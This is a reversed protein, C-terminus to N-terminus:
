GRAKPASEPMVDAYEFEATEGYVHDFTLGFAGKTSGSGRGVTYEPAFAFPAGKITTLSGDPATIPDVAATTWKGITASPKKGAKFGVPAREVGLFDAILPLFEAFPGGVQGSFIAEAAKAQEGSAKEDIVLGIKWNGSTLNTPFENYMGVNVGSLDVGDSTGTEIHFVATGHCTGNPGTPTGDVPCPCLLQCSCNAVYTGSIKWSM